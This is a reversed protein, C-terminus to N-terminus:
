WYQAYLHINYSTLGGVIVHM